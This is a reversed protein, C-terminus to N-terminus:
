TAETPGDLIDLAPRNPTQQQLLVGFGARNQFADGLPCRWVVTGQVLEQDIPKEENSVFSIIVETGVPAMTKSEVFITADGIKPTTGEHDSGDAIRWMLKHHRRGEGGERGAAKTMDASEMLMLRVGPAGVGNAESKRREGGTRESRGSSAGVETMLEVM